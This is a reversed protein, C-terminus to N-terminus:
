PVEPGFEDPQKLLDYLTRSSTSTVRSSRAGAGLVGATAKLAKAPLGPMFRPTRLANEYLAPSTNSLHAFAPGLMRSLPFVEGAAGQIGTLPYTATLVRHADRTIDEMPQTSGGKRIAELLAATTFEGGEGAKFAASSNAAGKVALRNRYAADLARLEDAKGPPLQGELLEGVFDKAREYIQRRGIVNPDSSNELNRINAKLRSRLAQLSTADVKGVDAGSKRPMLSEAQDTLWKLAEKRTGPTADIGRDAAALEFAGKRKATGKLTEDALLGRWKGAGEYKAPEMKVGDLLEDYAKTFGAGLEDIQDFVPTGGTPPKAGPAGSAKLLADRTTSAGQARLKDLSSGTAKKAALEEFRGLTSSPDMQGLTLDGGAMLVRAAEPTPRVYGGRVLSMMPAGVERAAWGGVAALPPLAAGFVGGMAGGGLTDVAMGGLGDATSMGLGTAAGTAAGVKAGSKMLAGLTKAGGAFPLLPMTAIGGALNGGLYYGGHAKEAAANNAREYYRAYDYADGMPAQELGMQGAWSKPLANVGGQMLATIAGVGEDGFGLTAGQLAGRGFAEARGPGAAEAAARRKEAALSAEFGRDSPALEAETPPTDWVGM